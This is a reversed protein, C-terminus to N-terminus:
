AKRRASSKAKSVKKNARAPAKAPPKAASPTSAAEKRRRAYENMIMVFERADSAAINRELFAQVEARDATPHVLEEKRLTDLLVDDVPIGHGGLSWLAVAAAAYPGVGDQAELFQRAERRGLSKLRELSVRHERNYVAQLARLLRQFYPRQDSAAIGAAQLLEDATSVRIENWDAMRELLRTVIQRAPEDGQNEGLVSTALRRLSDDQDAPVEVKMSGRLAAFHKKVREAYLTGQKM